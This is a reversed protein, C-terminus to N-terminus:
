LIRRAGTFISMDIGTVVIGIAKNRAHVIKGDGIYMAVHGPGKYYFVLDGPQLESIDVAKGAKYQATASRPIDIGVSKYAMYTLGSCDFGNPGTGGYEYYGDLKSLAYDVVRQAAPPLPMVPDVLPKEKSIELTAEYLVKADPSVGGIMQKRNGLLTSHHSNQQDSTVAEHIARALGFADQPGAMPDAYAQPVGLTSGLLAVLSFLVAMRTKSAKVM